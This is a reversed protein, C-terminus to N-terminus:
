GLVQEIARAADLLRYDGHRRAVLQLGVPLGTSGRLAPLSLTPVGCLTWILCHDAIDEGHVGLPAEEATSPEILIDYEALLQDLQRALASQRQLDEAYTEPPVALGASIMQQLVPSFKDQATNWETKFYYALARRYIREHLAHASGFGPPLAVPEIEFDALRAALRALSQRVAPAVLGSKPGSLLGVRWKTGLQRRRAELAAESTPYNHGRVRMVEFGLALDDISRALCGITDLTDTTKLMGTRPLLGFSPKFGHIGCYSAPRVISGATQTGLALPVMRAAVAAASGSSSTGPSRDLALPNRTGAPHHVAFEATVTKGPVIAGELRANSVVRADNGPTYHELIPSGMGTPLDYTNFVDKVGFPVGTLRRLPEGKALAADLRRARELAPELALSRWAKLQPDLQEIRDVCASVYDLVGIERKALRALFESATLEAASNARALSAAPEAATRNRTANAAETM